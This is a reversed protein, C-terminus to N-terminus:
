LLVTAPNAGHRRYFGKSARGPKKHLWRKSTAVLGSSRLYLHTWTRFSSSIPQEAVLDDHITRRSSETDDRKHWVSENGSNLLEGVLLQVRLKGRLLVIVYASM